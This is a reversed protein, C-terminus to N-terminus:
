GIDLGTKKSVIMRKMRDSITKTMRGRIVEKNRRSWALWLDRLNNASAKLREKRSTLAAKAINDSVTRLQLNGLMKGSFWLDRRNGKHMRSKYKAYRKTLPKAPADDPNLGARVRRKLDLLGVAGVDVMERQRLTLKDLRLQKKQWLRISSAMLASGNQKRGANEKASGQKLGGTRGIM